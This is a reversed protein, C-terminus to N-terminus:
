TFNDITGISGHEQFPFIIGKIIKLTDPRLNKNYSGLSPEDRNSKDVTEQVTRKTPQNEDTSSRTVAAAYDKPNPAVNDTARPQRDVSRENGDPAALTKPYSQQQQQQEKVATKAQESDFNAKKIPEPARNDAREPGGGGGGTKSSLLERELSVKREYRTHQQQQQESYDARAPQKDEISVPKGPAVEPTSKNNWLESSRREGSGAVDEPETRKYYEAPPLRKGVGGNDQPNSPPPPRRMGGGVVTEPPRRAGDEQLDPPPPRRSGYEAPADSRRAGAETTRYTADLVSDRRTLPQADRAKQGTPVAPRKNEDDQQPPRNYGVAPQPPYRQKQGELIVTPQRGYQTQEQPKGAYAAAPGQAGVGAPGQAAVPRQWQRSPDAIDAVPRVGAYVTSDRRNLPPPQSQQQNTVSSNVVVEEDDDGGGGVSGSLVGRAPRGNEPKYSRDEIRSLTPRRELM